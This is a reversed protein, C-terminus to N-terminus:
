FNVFADQLSRSSRVWYKPPVVEDGSVENRADDISDFPGFVIAIAPKKDKTIIPIRLFRPSDSRVYLSELNRLYDNQYDFCEKASNFAGFQIFYSNPKQSRVYQTGEKASSIFFKTKEDNELSLASSLNQRHSFNSSINSESSVSAAEDNASGTNIPAIFDGIKNKFIKKIGIASVFIVAIALLCIANYKLAQMRTECFHRTVGIALIFIIAFVFFFSKKGVEVGILDFLGIVDLLGCIAVANVSSFLAFYRWDFYRKIQLSLADSLPVEPQSVGQRTKEHDATNQHVSSLETTQYSQMEEKSTEYHTKQFDIKRSPEQNRQFDIDIEDVLSEGCSICFRASSSLQNGCHRCFKKATNDSDVTNAM